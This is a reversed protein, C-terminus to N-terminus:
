FPLQKNAYVAWKDYRLDNRIIYLTMDLSVCLQVHSFPAYPALTSIFNIIYTGIIVKYRNAVDDMWRRNLQDFQSPPFRIEAEYRCFRRDRNHYHAALHLFISSLSKRHM